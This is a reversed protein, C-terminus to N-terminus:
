SVLLGVRRAGVVMDVINYNKLNAKKWMRISLKFKLM